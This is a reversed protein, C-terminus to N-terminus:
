LTSTGVFEASYTDFKAVTGMPPPAGVVYCGSGVFQKSQTDFVMICRLQNPPVWRRSLQSEGAAAASKADAQKKTYDELQKKTPKLTEVAVYRHTAARRHGKRVAVLYDKVRKEATTAQATTPAYWYNSDYNGGYGPYWGEWFPDWYRGHYHSQGHNQDQNQGQDGPGTMRRSGQAVPLPLFALGIAAM